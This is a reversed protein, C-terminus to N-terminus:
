KTKTAFVNEDFWTAVSAKTASLEDGEADGLVEDAKAGDFDEAKSEKEDKKYDKKDKDMKEAEADKKAKADDDAAKSDDEKKKKDDEKDKTFKEFKAVIKAFAEDSLEAYTSVEEAAEDDSFGAKVLQATRASTKQAEEMKALAEQATTLEATKAELETKATALEEKTAAVTDELTKVAEDKSAVLQKVEEAQRKEAETKIKQNEEKAIALESKLEAVQTELVDSMKTDGITFLKDDTFNEEKLDFAQSRLIISRPNAPKSVLGKGSFSIGSLARGVKYGDYEGEGGYSRLHKTLYASTENRELLFSEGDPSVLAYNFGAFLCEMSVYWLDQEIEAIIKDIRQQNEPKAWSTYIVSETIIDFTTPAAATENAVLNGDQDLIYSGTIHGIIDNEEHMFNFPKDEPTSRAAWTQDPLFVDDNKNWGTSVLVTDLYFLDIQDANASPSVGAITKPSEFTTVPTSSKRAVSEFAISAQSRVLEELGDEIEKTYAKIM